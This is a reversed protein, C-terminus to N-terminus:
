GLNEEAQTRRFYHPLFQDFSLIKLTNVTAFALNPQGIRQYSLKEKQSSYQFILQFSVNFKEALIDITTALNQIKIDQIDTMPQGRDFGQGFFRNQKGDLLVFFSSDKLHPHNKIIENCALQTSTIEYIKTSYLFAFTKLVAVAMRLGTFSAAPGIDCVLGQIDKGYFQHKQMLDDILFLGEQHFFGEQHLTEILQWQSDWLVLDFGQFSSGVGLYM